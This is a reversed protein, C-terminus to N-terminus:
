VANRRDFLAEGQKRTDVSMGVLIEDHDKELQALVETACDDASMMQQGTTGGSRVGGGLGTDVIPPAVEVVRVGIAKLQHRLCLTFSHVAAKTACYVPVDAVPAFALGSSVNVISAHPKQRLFTLLEGVLHVHGTFNVAVEHDLNELAGDRKFDPRYQNAEAPGRRTVNRGRTSQADRACLARFDWLPPPRRYTRDGRGGRRRSADRRKRPAHALLLTQVPSNGHSDQSAFEGTPSIAVSQSAFKSPASLLAAHMATGRSSWGFSRCASSVERVLQGGDIPFDTDISITMM